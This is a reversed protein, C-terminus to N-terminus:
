ATAADTGEALRQFHKALALFMQALTADQEPQFADIGLGEAHDM